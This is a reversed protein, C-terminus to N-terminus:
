SKCCRSNCQFTIIYIGGNSKSTSVRGGEITAMISANQGRTSRHFSKGTPITVTALQPTLTAGSPTRVQDPWHIDDLDTLLSYKSSVIPRAYSAPQRFRQTVSKCCVRFKSFSTRANKNKKILQLETSCDDYIPIIDARLVGKWLGFYRFPLSSLRAGKFLSVLRIQLFSLFVRPRPNSHGTTWHIPTTGRRERNSNDGRIRLM